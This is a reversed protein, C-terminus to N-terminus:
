STPTFGLAKRQATWSLPLDTQLIRALNVGHPQRGRLITEVIEPSLFGLKLIRRVYDETCGAKRALESLSPVEGNELAERWEFARAVAKILTRDPADGNEPSGERPAHIVQEGGWTKLRIPIRLVLVDGQDIYRDGSHGNRELGVAQPDLASKLLNVEVVEGRIEVKRLAQRLNQIQEGPSMKEWRNHSAAPLFERIHETILEEIAQAPVRPISGAADPNRDLLARSVYYRYRRGGKTAHTPAMRNGRDDFLIGALLNRPNSTKEKRHNRRNAALMDQAKDWLERSVTPEHEGSHIKEKHHIQGIYVPNRLLTYLAGRAFPIGIRQLGKQTTWSKSHIGRKKLDTVLDPVSELELYRQYIFRVQEAEESNVELKRYRVDYGLPPIGGMWIGKKKSAAVKDRIREGTVEREFQAFSLLVNLTLRGMSTTTNFAQTVSVFSVKHSEFTEVIRAFDNLARTLRDVKYVVVVDILGRGIDALLSQLGPREMTGGSYGGDDYPTEILEWGEGAQSKVYAQCAERQAHLSNFGQELGEESSKRTYIACRLSATKTM